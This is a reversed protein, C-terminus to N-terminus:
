LSRHAADVGSCRQRFRVQNQLLKFAGTDVSPYKILVCLASDSFQWDGIGPRINPDNLIVLKM